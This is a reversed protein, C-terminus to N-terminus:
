RHQYVRSHHGADLILIVLEGDHISCILRYDGVRYCWLGRLNGTLAKGRSRPDDLNKLDDLFEVIQTSVPKDLKKMQRRASESIRIEYM